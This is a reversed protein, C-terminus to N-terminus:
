AKKNHVNKVHQNMHGKQCFKKKCFQCEHKVGLHESSVHQNMQGKTGFKKKCFQCEYPKLGKHIVNIHKNLDGAWGFKKGCESCEYPKLGRHITNIHRQLAKVVGFEKVCEHCKHPKLKQHVERIHQDLNQKLTFTKGCTPCARHNVNTHVTRQHRRLHSKDSFSKNCQDCTHKIKKHNSQVHAWLNSQNTFAKDCLSCKFAKPKNPDRQTREKGCRMEGEKNSNWKVHNELGVPHGFIAQCPSCYFYARTKDQALAGMMKTARAPTNSSDGSPAALRQKAVPPVSSPASNVPGTPVPHPATPSTRPAPLPSSQTADIGSERNIEKRVRAQNKKTEESRAEAAEKAVPAKLAAVEEKTLRFHEHIGLTKSYNVGYHTLLEDGPAIPQVVRYWIDGRYQVAVINQQWLYNASNVYALWDRKRDPKPGPDVVGIVKGKVEDRLEWGYGSEIKYDSKKIFKGRYPGFMVGVPIVDKELISFVGEGAGEITSKAVQLIGKVDLWLQVHHFPCEGDIIEEECEDCYIFCDPDPEEESYDITKKRPRLQRSPRSDETSEAM